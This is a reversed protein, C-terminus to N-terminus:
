GGGGAATTAVTAAMVATVVAAQVAEVARRVAEAAWAGESVEKARRKLARKDPADVIKPVVDIATLLSVLASTRGDPTLGQVLVGHLRARLTDEHSSDRAPWTTTPFVRLIRGEQRQLIGREALDNLLRDRLGKTLPRIVDAPKRGGRHDLLELADDLVPSGLPSRDRVVLRGKRVEEDPGAVDVRGQLALELLVAGALAYQVKTSDALPRGTNDDLLLLLLDEAILM